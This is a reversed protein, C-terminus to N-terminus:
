LHDKFWLASLLIGDTQAGERILRFIADESLLVPEICELPDLKQEGRKVANKGFLYYIKQNCLGPLPHCCGMLIGEDFSYGTEELFERKGGAIPDEGEELCGGPCGLLIQGTPHRYERNLIFRGQEDHALVTVADGCALAAYRHLTGNKELLDERLSFFGTRHIIRSSKVKPLQM